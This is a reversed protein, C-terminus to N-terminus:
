KGGDTNKCDTCVIQLHTTTLVKAKPDLVNAKDLVNVDINGPKSTLERTIEVKITKMKEGPKLNTPTKFQLSLKNAEVSQVASLDDGSVDIWISDYQHLMVPMPKSSDAVAKPVDLTSAAAIPSVLVIKDPLKASDDAATTTTDKKPAAPKSKDTLKEAAPPNDQNSCSKVDFIYANDSLRTCLASSNIPKCQKEGFEIRECGAIFTWPQPTSPKDQTPGSSSPEGPGKLTTPDIPKFGLPDPSQVLLSTDSLRTLQFKCSADAVFSYYATWHDPFFPYSVKVLGSCGGVFSEPIFSKIVIQNNNQEIAYPLPVVNGSVTVIPSTQSISQATGGYTTFLRIANALLDSSAQTLKVEFSRVGLKPPGIKVESIAIGSSNNATDAAVLPKASGYRGIIAGTGSALADLPVMLDFAQNSKLILGDGGGSYTKDGISVQTGTFFNNGVVSILATKSGVPTWSVHDIRPGLDDQYTNSSEVRINSYDAFNLYRDAFIQPRTLTLTAAYKVKTARNEDGPLFSTLTGADYKKWYTRVHASLDARCAPSSKGSKPTKDAGTCDKVPLSAVAFLQRMGPSLSRRGLVPRFMWGFILTNPHNPEMREYSITDNDRYLYFTQGRRRQSYGVQITKVVATGGFANSKTSLSAANYTKEQPMLAVLSFGTGEDDEPTESDHCIDLERKQNKPLLSEAKTKNCLTIEVVAVADNATRPPDISVNFGLVAQLRTENEGAQPNHLLRDSLARELIMRLNFIQYSLNVQDTLLDAANEGYNPNFGSFSPATELAPATPTFGNSTTTTQTQATNSQGNNPLINGSSDVNGTSNTVGQTVGPIPVPNVQFNSTVERSQFGQINGLAAAVSQQNVFGTQMNQLTASLNEIMLTLTRNDFVKPKGISIGNCPHKKDSVCSSQGWLLHVSLFFSLFVPLLLRTHRPM